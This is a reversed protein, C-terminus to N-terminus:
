REEGRPKTWVCFKVIAGLSATWDRPIDFWGSRPTGSVDHGESM